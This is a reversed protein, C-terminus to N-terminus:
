VGASSPPLDRRGGRTRPGAEADGKPATSCRPVPKLLDGPKLGAKAGHYFPGTDKVQPSMPKEM